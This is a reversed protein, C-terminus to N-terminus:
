LYRYEVSEEGVIKDNYIFQMVVYYIGSTDIKNPLTIRYYTDTGTNILEPVFDIIGDTANGNTDYISYRVKEIDTLRYSEFFLLNVKTKDELNTDASVTGINIGENNTIGGTYSKEKSVKKTSNNYLDQEYIIRITYKEDVTADPVVIMNNVTDIDFDVNKYEEPTINDGDENFLKVQYKGDIISKQYDKINIKFAFDGTEELVSSSVGVYPVYLVPFDYEANGNVLEVDNEGVTVIPIIKVIYKNQADIGCDIPIPIDKSMEKKFETEDEININVKENGSDTVKYIEYKIKDYGKLETLNYSLHLLRDNYTDAEYSVAENSIGINDLTEFSYKVTNSEENIDYLQTYTYEGSSLINAFVRFYYNTKPKLGDINITSNFDSVKLKVKKVMEDDQSNYVEIYVEDGQMVSGSAGYISANINVNNLKPTITAEGSENQISIGPIITNFKFTENGVNNTNVGSLKKPSVLIENYSMGASTNKLNLTKTKNENLTKLQLSKSGINFTSTFFSANASAKSLVNSSPDLYLYNSTANKETKLTQLAFYDGETEFGYTGDDYYLTITPKVNKGVYDEIDSLDIVIKGNEFEYGKITTSHGECEFKINAGAVRDFFEKDEEYKDFTVVARNTEVTVTYNEVVPTYAQEYYQEVQTDTTIKEEENILAQKTVIKFDGYTTIPFDLTKYENSNTQEMTVSGLNIDGIKYYAKNDYSANDIDQFSYKWSFKQSDNTKPYLKLSFPQKEPTVVPSRLTVPVTPYTINNGNLTLDATYSFYYEKGRRFKKDNEGYKKGDELYLYVYGIEGSAPVDYVYTDVVENTKADKIYYTISNAYKQSNDYTAKVVYGVITEPDLDDRHKAGAEKNKITVATVAKNPDDPLEPVYNNTRVYVTNNKIPLDNKYKTYDYADTIQITYYESTFDENKMGFTSPTISFEEDYYEGKLTSSYPEENTDNLKVSKVLGSSTTLGKYINISLGTLTNAELTADDEADTLQAAVKFADTVNDKDVNYYLKFPNPSETKVIVSAIRCADIPDNGDKLDVKTTVAISYTENSRLDNLDIPIDLTGTSTFTKSEGVSDTFTITIPNNEYDITEGSDNIKLTGKIREFTVKEKEFTVTPFDSGDMVMIDSYDTVYEYEKENDNFIAVLRFVYPKKREINKGDVKVVANSSDNKEITAIAPAEGLTTADYIEYRYSVVGKQPDNVNNAILKFESNKKDILFSLNGFTPKVKLTKLTKLVDFNETVIVDKYTFNTLIVKYETNSDLDTFDVQRKEESSLSVPMTKLVQGEKSLLKCEVSNVLSYDKKELLVSIEDTSVYNKEIGVGIPETTFTKQVFDKNYNVNNKKYNSNVALIYTVEPVLANNEIQIVKSGEPYNKEYVVDGTAANIIKVNIDGVLTSDVDTVKIESSLSVSTTQMSSVIFEADKITSNKTITEIIDTTDVINGDINPLKKGNNKSSKSNIITNTQNNNNTTNNTNNIITNNKDKEIDVNKKSNIQIDNLKLKNEENTYLTKDSLNITLANVKITAEDSINQLSFEQNDIKIIKGDLYKVEVYGNTVTRKTDGISIKIDRAIIMFKSDSLKILFNDFKLSKDLYSIEYYNNKKTFISGTHTNYYKYADVEDSIDNLNLVVAKTFASISGDEYHIFTKNSFKKKEGKENEFIVKTGTLKYPTNKTFYVKNASGAKSNIIHGDAQFTNLKNKYFNIGFIFLLVMLLAMPILVIIMKKSM